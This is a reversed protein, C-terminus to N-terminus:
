KEKFYICNNNKNLEHPNSIFKYVREIPTNYYFKNEEANCAAVSSLGRLLFKCNTCYIINKM